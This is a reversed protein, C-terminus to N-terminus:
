ENGDSTVLSSIESEYIEYDIKNPNCCVVCDYIESNRGNFTEGVELNVEFTEFCFHCIIIQNSLELQNKLM